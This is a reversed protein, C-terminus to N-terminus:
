GNFNGERRCAACYRRKDTITIVVEKSRPAGCHECPKSVNTASKDPPLQQPTPRKM